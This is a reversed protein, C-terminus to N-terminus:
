SMVKKNDILLKLMVPLALTTVLAMVVIATYIEPPILQNVRAIEAIVLEVAGRSNLGWGIIHTQKLTLNTFPTIIIAGIIKGLTGLIVILVILWINAVLHEFQLHIGINIFFFPIILAFTIGELEKINEQHEYKHHESLHLIIGAIFAGIIPGLDLKKSIVAIIITFLIIFSLTAIRSREKQIIKLVFPFFKYTIYVIIVFLFLKLPLIAISTSIKNALALVVSLFIVELVDDLIGAGLIIMGIRTNLVKMDMLLKLTTGEASLSFCAGVVFGIINTYGAIRMVGWGLFFPIAACSIALLISHKTAAKFKELNLELGILLLLFIIGLDALFSIDDLAQPDFIVRIFPLGLIIGAILQGLIRPYKFRFFLESLIFSLSLAIAVVVLTDVM